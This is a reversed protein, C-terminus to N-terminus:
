LPLASLRDKAISLSYAHEGISVEAMGPAVLKAAISIESELAFAAAVWCDGEAEFALELTEAAVASRTEPSVWGQVGGEKRGCEIRREILGSSAIAFNFM